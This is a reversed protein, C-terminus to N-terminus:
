SSAKAKGKGAPQPGEALAQKVAQAVTSAQAAPPPPAPQPVPEEPREDVLQELLEHLTWLADSRADLDAADDLRTPLQPVLAEYPGGALAHAAQELLRNFEYPKFADHVLEQQLALLLSAPVLDAECLAEHLEDRDDLAEDVAERVAQKVAPVVEMVARKLAPPLGQEVQDVVADASRSVAALINATSTSQGTAIQSGLRTVGQDIKDGLAQARGDLAHVADEIEGLKALSTLDINVTGSSRRYFAPDPVKM